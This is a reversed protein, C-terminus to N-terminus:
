VTGSIVHNIDPALIGRVLIPNVALAPERNFSLKLSLRLVRCGAIMGRYNQRFELLDETIIFWVEPCM